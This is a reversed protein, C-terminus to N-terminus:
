FKVPALERWSTQSMATTVTTTTSFVNADPDLWFHAHGGATIGHSAFVMGYIGAQGDMTLQGVIYVGGKFTPCGTFGGGFHHHAVCGHGFRFPETKHFGADGPYQHWCHSDGGGSCSVGPKNSLNEGYHPADKEYEYYASPPPTVTFDGYGEACSGQGAMHVSGLSIFRGRFHSVGAINCGKEFFWVANDDKSLLNSLTVYNAYYHGQAKAKSRYWDFDIPPIPPVWHPNFAWWERRDTRHQRPNTGRGFICGGAIKRPFFVDANGKLDINQHAVIKGWVARAFGGFKIFYANAVTDTRTAQNTYLVELTRLEKGSADKGTSLVRVQGYEATSSLRVRYTGSGVMDSYSNDFRYGAPAAGGAVILDYVSTDNRLLLLARNAGAEALAYATQSRQEKLSANSDQRSLYVLAPVIVSLVAIALIAVLISFGGRRNLGGCASHLKNM